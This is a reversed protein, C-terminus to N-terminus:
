FQVGFMDGLATIDHSQCKAFALRATHLLPFRGVIASLMSIIGCELRNTFIWNHRFYVFKKTFFCVLYFNVSCKSTNKTPKEMSMKTTGFVPIWFFINKLFNQFFYQCASFDTTYYALLVFCLAGSEGQCLPHGQNIHYFERRYNPSATRLSQRQVSKKTQLHQIILAFSVFSVRSFSCIVAFSTRSIPGSPSVSPMMLEDLASSCAYSLPNSRTIIDAWAVGGTQLIM